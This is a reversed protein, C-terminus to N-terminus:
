KTSALENMTVLRNGTLDIQTGAMDAPTLGGIGQNPRISNYYTQMGAAFETAGIPDNFSRVVKTREHFTENLRELINNNPKTEVDRCRVLVAAGSAPLGGWILYEANEPEPTVGRERANWRVAVLM